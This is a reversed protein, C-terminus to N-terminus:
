YFTTWVQGVANLRVFLTKGHEIEVAIEQGVEMGRVFTRTDLVSVDDYLKVSEAYQRSKLLSERVFAPIVQKFVAPYQSYSVVDHESIDDGYLGILFRKKEEFDYPEMEAGPRGEFCEKGNPLLKGKIVKTRLPEPFGYPPIGLYGQFYEVVSKPFSLTEAKEIVDTESLDNQVM